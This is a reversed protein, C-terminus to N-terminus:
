AMVRLSFYGAYRLWRGPRPPRDSGAMSTRLVPRTPTPAPTHGYTPAFRHHPSAARVCPPGPVFLSDHCAFAFPRSPTENRMRLTVVSRTLGRARHSDLLRCARHDHGARLISLREPALTGLARWVGELEDIGAVLSLMEPTIQLTPTQLM